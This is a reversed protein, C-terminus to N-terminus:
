IFFMLICTNCFKNCLDSTYIILIFYLYIRWNFYRALKVDKSLRRIKKKQKKRKKCRIWTIVYNIVPWFTIPALQNSIIRSIATKWPQMCSVLFCIILISFYLKKREKKVNLIHRCWYYCFINKERIKSNETNSINFLIYCKKHIKLM